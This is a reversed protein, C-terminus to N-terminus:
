PNPRQSTASEIIPSRAGGGLAEIMQVVALRHQANAGRQQGLQLLAQVYQDRDIGRATLIRAQNSMIRAAREDMHGALVANLVKRATVFAAEGVTRPHNDGLPKESSLPLRRQAATRRATASNGTIQNATEAFRNEAAINRSINQAQQRPVIQELKQRAFQSNLQRRVTADGNPRFNTAANGMTTYLQDRAGLNFAQNELHSYGARTAEMQDPTVGRSFARGGEEMAERTGIGEGAVERAQAWASQAPDAPSLTADVTNRLRRALDSYVRHENSGREASRAMDDVARKLYDYEIGTPVHERVSGNVGTMATMPDNVPRLRFQQRYGEARALRQAANFAAPPIDGLVQAIEQTVPISTAHFQEYLPRALDGYHQRLQQEVQITNVAPGLNADLTSAIRGPAGASRERLADRVISMQPGNTNALAEGTLTLDDGMDLLMGQGGLEHRRRAYAVADLGSSQMDDVVNTVAKREMGALPGAPPTARDRAYGVANGIGRAIPAIAAGLTAGMVAGGAANELRQAGEGEGAGYLAGYGAGTMAANGMQPLLTAGRFYNVAGFPASAAIGGAVAAGKELGSANEDIYRQRADQYAKAEAYSPAGFRGGTAKGLVTDLVASAEDLWSGFPLYQAPNARPVLGAAAERAVRESARKDIEPMEPKAAAAESPILDDFMGGRVPPAAGQPVLDDFMGM